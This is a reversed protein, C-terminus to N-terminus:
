EIEMYGKDCRTLAANGDPGTFSGRYLGKGKHLPLMPNGACTCGVATIWEHSRGAGQIPWPPRRQSMIVKARNHVGLVYM